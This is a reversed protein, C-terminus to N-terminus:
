SSGDASGGSSSGGSGSSRSSVHSGGQATGHQSGSQSAESPQTSAAAVAVGATIPPVVQPAHYHHALKAIKPPRGRRKAHASALGRKRPSLNLFRGAAGDPSTLQFDVAAPGNDTGFAGADSSNAPLTAASTFAGAATRGGFYGGYGGGRYSGGAEAGTGVPAGGPGYVAESKLQQLLNWKDRMQKLVGEHRALM